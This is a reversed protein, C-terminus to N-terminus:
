EFRYPRCKHEYEVGTFSNYSNFSNNAVSRKKAPSFAELAANGEITLNYTLVVRHLPQLFRRRFESFFGVSIDGGCVRQM